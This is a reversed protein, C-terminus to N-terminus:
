GRNREDFTQSIENSDKGFLENSVSFSGLSRTIEEQGLVLEVDLTDTLTEESDGGEVTTVASGQTGM